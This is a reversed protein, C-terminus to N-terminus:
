STASGMGCVKWGNDNKMKLTQAPFVHESSTGAASASKVNGSVKVDASDGTQNATEFTLGSTDVKVGGAAIGASVAAAMQKLGDTVKTNGTCIFLDTAAGSYLAVFYAKAADSPNSAGSGTTNKPSSSSNANPASSGCAALVAALVFTFMVSFLSRSRMLKSGKQFNLEIL